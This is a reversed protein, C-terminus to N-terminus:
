NISKETSTLKGSQNITQNTVNILNRSPNSGLVNGWSFNFSGLRSM